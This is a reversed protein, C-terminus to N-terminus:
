HCKRWGWTILPGGSLPLVGVNQFSSQQMLYTAPWATTTHATLYEPQEADWFATLISKVESAPDDGGQTEDFHVEFQWVGPINSQVFVGLTGNLQWYQVDGSRILEAAANGALEEFEDKGIQESPVLREAKPKSAKATDQSTSM